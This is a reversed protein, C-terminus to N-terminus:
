AYMPSLAEAAAQHDVTYIAIYINFRLTISNLIGDRILAEALSEWGAFAVNQSSSGCAVIEVDYGSLAQNTLLRM